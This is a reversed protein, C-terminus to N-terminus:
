RRIEQDGLKDRIYQLEQEILKKSTTSYLSGSWVRKLGLPMRIAKIRLGNLACQLNFLYDYCFKLDECFIPVRRRNFGAFPLSLMNAIKRQNETRFPRIHIYRKPICDETVEICSGALYDVKREALYHYTVLARERFYVDDDTAILIYDTNALKMGENYCKPPPWDSTDIIRIRKDYSKMPINKNNFILLEWDKLTQQIISTVAQELFRSRGVAM